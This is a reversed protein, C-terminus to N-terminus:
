VPWLDIVSFDLDSEVIDLGRVTCGIEFAHLATQVEKRFNHLDENDSFQGTLKREISVLEQLLGTVLLLRDDPMSKVVHIYDSVATNKRM